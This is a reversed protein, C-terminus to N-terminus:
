GVHVSEDQEQEQKRRRPIITQREVIVHLVAGIILGYAAGYVALVVGTVGAIAQQTPNHVQEMGVTLCLYGTILLTLSLAIPLVPQFISVLPLIFVAAFGAIYFTGAGSYISEMAKRGYTYRAVITATLATWIPGALGPLPATLGHVLNRIATILHVRDNDVEVHEDERIEDARDLIATGVIIDGYAIVYAILATPLAVLLLEPGPFGVGFPTYEWMETWAFPTIGWEVTPLPYERVAWGVAIAVLLGPVLGYNALAATIRSKRYLSQFSTSFLMYVTLLAGIILSIPTEALNGGPEIEGVIAAIGAGLLVGGKLSAPIITVLKGGLKTIGLIFFIAFVLLQVAVLARVAEPGPEFDGLFLVIVPIAPTIWGPVFPIGMLAPLMMLALSIIVFTVAVDYPVGVHEELLPIMALGVVFMVLAQICEAWEWPYHIFPLRFKFPGLPWCPQEAGHERKHLYRTAM